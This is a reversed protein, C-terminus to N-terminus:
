LRFVQVGTATPPRGPSVSSSFVALSSVGLSPRRLAAPSAAARWTGFLRGLLSAGLGVLLAAVAYDLHPAPHDASRDASHSDVSGGTAHLAGSGASPMFELVTQHDASGIAGHCVFLAVILLPALLSAPARRREPLSAPDFIDKLGGNM